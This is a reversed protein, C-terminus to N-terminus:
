GPSQVLCRLRGDGGRWTRPVLTGRNLPNFSVIINPSGERGAFRGNGHRSKSSQFENSSEGCPSNSLGGM